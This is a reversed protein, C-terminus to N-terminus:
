QLILSRFDQKGIAVGSPAKPGTDVDACDRADQCCFRRAGQHSRGLGQRNLLSLSLDIPRHIAKSQCAGQKVAEIGCPAPFPFCAIAVSAIFWPRLSVWVRANTMAQNKVTM